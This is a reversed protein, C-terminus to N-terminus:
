RPRKHHHDMNNKHLRGSGRFPSRSIQRNQTLLTRLNAVNVASLGEDIIILLSNLIGPGSKEIEDLMVIARRGSNEALFNNLKSGRECGLYPRNPGFLDSEYKVQGLDVDESPLSLIMGLRRGLETKGHGSPGLM